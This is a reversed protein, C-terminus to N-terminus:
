AQINCNIVNFNCYRLGSTSTTSRALQEQKLAKQRILEGEANVLLYRYTRQPEGNRFFSFTGDRDQGAQKNGGKTSQFTSIDFTETAQAFFNVSFFLLCAAAFLSQKM